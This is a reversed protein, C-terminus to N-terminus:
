TNLKTDYLLTSVILTKKSNEWHMNNPLVLILLVYIRNHKINYLALLTQLKNAPSYSCLNLEYSLNMDGVSDRKLLPLAIVHYFLHIGPARWLQVSIIACLLPANQTGWLHMVAPQTIWWLPAPHFKLSEVRVGRVSDHQLFFCDKRRQKDTQTTQPLLHPMYSVSLTISQISGRAASANRNFPIIFICYSWGNNLKSQLWATLVSQLM